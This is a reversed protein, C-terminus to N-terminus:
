PAPPRGLGAPRSVEPPLPPEESRPSVEQQLQSPPTWGFFPTPVEPRGDLVAPPTWGTLDVPRQFGVRFIGVVSLILFQFFTESRDNVDRSFGWDAPEPQAQLPAGGGELALLALGAVLARTARSV